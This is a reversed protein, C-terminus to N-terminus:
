SHNVRKRQQRLASGGAGDRARHEVDEAGGQGPGVDRGSLDAGLGGAGHLGVLIASKEERLDIGAGIGNGHSGWSKRFLDRLGNGDFNAAGGCQVEIEGYRSARLGDFDGGLLRQETKFIGVGSGGDFRVGDRLRGM